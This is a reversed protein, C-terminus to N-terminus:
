KNSHLLMHTTKQFLISLPHTYSEMEIAKNFLIQAEDM